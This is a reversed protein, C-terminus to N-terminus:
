FQFKKERNVLYYINQQKLCHIAVLGIFLFLLILLLSNFENYKLTLLYLEIPKPLPATDSTYLIVTSFIGYVQLFNIDADLSIIILSIFIKFSILPSLNGLKKLFIIVRSASYIKYLYM